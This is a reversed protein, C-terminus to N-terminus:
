VYSQYLVLAEDFFFSLPVLYTFAGFRLVRGYKKFILKKIITPFILVVFIMFVILYNNSILDINFLKVFIDYFKTMLVIWYLIVFFDVYKVLYKEFFM